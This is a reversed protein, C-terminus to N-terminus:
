WRTLSPAAGTTSSSALLPESVEYPPNKPDLIATLEAMVVRQIQRKRAQGAVADTLQVKTEVNKKVEKVLKINM